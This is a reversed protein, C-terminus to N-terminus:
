IQTSPPGSGISSVASTILQQLDNVDKIVAGSLVDLKAIEELKERAESKEDRVFIEDILDCALILGIL